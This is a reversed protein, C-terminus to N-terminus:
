EPCTVPVEKFEMLQIMTGGIKDSDLYVETLELRTKKATGAQDAPNDIPIRLRMVPEVGSKALEKLKEDLNRVLFAVHQLGEGRERLFETHVTEGELVQVLEIFVPGSYAIAAKVRASATKGRYAFSKLDYVETTFPGLGFVSGYYEVAKDMDRVVIGVHSMKGLTVMSPRKEQV